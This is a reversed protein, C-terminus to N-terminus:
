ELPRICLIFKRYYTVIGLFSRLKFINRTVHEGTAHVHYTSVLANERLEMQERQTSPVQGMSGLARGAYDIPYAGADSMPLEYAM